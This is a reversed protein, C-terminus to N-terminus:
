RKLWWNNGTVKFQFHWFFSTGYEWVSLNTAQKYYKILSIFVLIKHADQTSNWPGGPGGPAGPWGPSMPAFTLVSMQRFFWMWWWTLMSVNAFLILCLSCCLSIPTDNTKLYKTKFWLIIVNSIVVQHRYQMFFRCCIYCCDKLLKQSMKNLVVFTIDHHHWHVFWPIASTSLIQGSPTM